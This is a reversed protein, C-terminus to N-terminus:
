AALPKDRQIRTDDGGHAHVFSEIESRRIGLDQLARDDLSQLRAVDHRDDLRSKLWARVKAVARIAHNASSSVAAALKIVMERNAEARLRGARRIANRRLDVWEQPSLKRGDLTSFDIEEDSAM